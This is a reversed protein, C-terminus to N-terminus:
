SILKKSQKDRHFKIAFRHVEEQVKSLLVFNPNSMIGFSKGDRTHIQSSKHNGDKSISILDIKDHLKLEDFVKIAVNLQGKGGDIIVLHPLQTKEKLMRSFRRTLVEEFSAYDNIGEFSKIIYKRYDSKNPRDNVFRVSAAVNSDGQNHSNDFAEIILPLRELNLERKIEFAKKNYKRLRVVELKQELEDIVKLKHLQTQALEFELKGSHYKMVRKIDSKVKEFNLEFIRKVQEIRNLYQFKTALGLCPALCRQMQYELCAKFKQSEINEDTLEYSCSRLEFADHILDYIEYCILGNTFDLSPRDDDKNRIVELKPFPEESFCISWKRSKDDKGKINFKPRYLKILEEEMLLAESESSTIVFDVDRANEVLQKTKFDSHKKQFYSSVRKPLYKSMGVYIVQEKDDKFLYCGAFKPINKLKESIM